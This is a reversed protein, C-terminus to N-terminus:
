EAMIRSFLTKFMILDANEACLGEVEGLAVDVAIGLTIDDVESLLAVDAGHEGEETSLRALGNRADSHRQRVLSMNLAQTVSSLIERRLPPM